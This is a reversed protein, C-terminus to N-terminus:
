TEQINDNKVLDLKFQFLEQPFGIHDRDQNLLFEHLKQNFFDALRKAKEENEHVPIEVVIKFM